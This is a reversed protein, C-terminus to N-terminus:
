PRRPSARLPRTMPWRIARLRYLEEVAAPSTATADTFGPPEPWQSHGLTTLPRAVLPPLLRFVATDPCRMRATRRPHDNPGARVLHSRKGPARASPPEDARHSPPTAAQRSVLRTPFVGSGPWTATRSQVVLGLQPDSAWAPSIRIGANRQCSTERFFNNCFVSRSRPHQEASSSPKARWHHHIITFQVIFGGVGHRQFAGELARFFCFPFGPRGNTPARPPPGPEARWPPTSLSSIGKIM